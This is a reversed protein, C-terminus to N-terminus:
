INNLNTPADPEMTYYSYKFVCSSKLHPTDNSDSQFILGSLKIPILNLFTVTLIPDNCASYNNLPSILQLQATDRHWQDYAINNTTSNEINSLNRIWSYISKWNTLDSDVIFEVSLAEYQVTMSPVPITTGFITPQNQDPLSVGPLNTKTVMLELPKTTRNIFLRFYNGYLFNINDKCPTATM